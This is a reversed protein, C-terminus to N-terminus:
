SFVGAKFAQGGHGGFSFIRNVVDAPLATNESIKFQLNGTPLAMNHRPSSLPVSLFLLCVNVIGFCFSGLENSVVSDEEVDWLTM